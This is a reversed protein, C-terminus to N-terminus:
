LSCRLEETYSPFRQFYEQPTLDPERRRRFKYEAQILGLVVARDGALEPDCDLYSEVRAPMGAKLRCEVDSHVLEVLVSRRLAGDAPLYGELSPPGGQRWAQEFRELIEELDNGTQGAPTKRLQDASAMVAGGPAPRPAPRHPSHRDPRSEHCLLPFWSTFVH